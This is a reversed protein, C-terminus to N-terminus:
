TCYKKVIKSQKKIDGKAGAAVFEQFSARKEQIELAEELDSEDMPDVDEPIKEELKNQERSHMQTSGGGGNDIDVNLNQAFQKLISRAFMKQLSDNIERCCKEKLM